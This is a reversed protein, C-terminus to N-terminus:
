IGNRSIGLKGYLVVNAFCRILACEPSPRLRKAGTILSNVLVAESVLM